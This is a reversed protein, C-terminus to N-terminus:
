SNKKPFLHQVEELSVPKVLHANFGAEDSRIRDEDRGYGTMAILTMDKNQSDNRIQRALEYGDLKPLGIDLLAIDPQKSRVEDLGSLGDSAVFVENGLLRLLHALMQASDLNDDVILIRYSQVGLTESLAPTSRDARRAETLNSQNYANELLRLTVVFESGKDTGDSHATISGGHLEILSKVLTLGIGLGGQSRDSSQIGQSFLEFIHPLIDPSIGAGKDRMSIWASSDKRKATIYIDGKSPSFKSANNLLNAFVQSLRTADGDVILPSSPLDVHLTQKQSDIHPQSIEIAATIVDRLDIPQLKLRVKDQTIRSVDLLDDILRTLQTTQREIIGHSNTIIHKESTRRMVELATRIPALPNRLEHGLMALFQNKRQDAGRLDASTKKLEDELLKQKTQDRMVITFGILTGSQDHLSTITGRAFILSGDKKIIWRDNEVSGVLEAKKLLDELAPTGHEDPPLVRSSISTQLFEELDFGLVTRVGENWSTPKGNIDVMFIAYEQVQAVLTRYREESLKLNSEAMSRETIDEIALLIREPTELSTEIRYGNLLMRKDGLHPFFACVEFDHLSKKKPLIDELLQRLAPINWAGDNIEYILRDEVDKVELKFTTLFAHNVSKVRLSPDLVVLPESVTNFLASTYLDALDLETQVEKVEQIDFLVLVAGDIKNDLTRYPHIRLLWNGGKRDLIEAEYVQVTEVVNLILEEINPVEFAFHIDSFPRSMDTELLNLLKAAAPTFRRIRLDIGVAVMPVSASGLLNLMDDNLRGLEQNRNQLQENVTTLEENISQLEEKATELEENTSQLEENSSLGEENALKLDETARDHQEMIQRIYERASALEQKLQYIEDQSQQQLRQRATLPKLIFRGLESLPTKWSTREAHRNYHNTEGTASTLTDFLILFCREKSTSLKVPLVKLSVDLIDGASRVKLSKLTPSQTTRCDDVASKLEFFLGERALRALNHSPEGATPALYLSTDGRFQLIELNDNVLVGAPAYQGLLMRDAERQWEGSGLQRAGQFINSSSFHETKFHPYQRVATINKSFIRHTNDIPHFLDHFSGVSESAGLILFGNPNLAYHFTPIVRKQLVPSLYILVNRCSIIDLVSFPPDTAMNQRAFICTDRLAKNIRYRGSDKTFFRRLREPSMEEEITQPYIGARAKELSVTDNLDTAFIQIVPRVLKDDLFETLAIALSYAEQGTSCGPVWIRIPTDATKSKLIEPFVCIKLEDFMEPDRFFSTVGILIDQFLAELESPTNELHVAYDSLSDTSCLAMRRLIRRRITTDRYESFDVGKAARLLLLIRHFADLERQNSPTHIWNKELYPYKSIASIKDAIEKPTLIFDVCGSNVASEPMSSYKASETNQAFTLGGAAKIEELGQTGDSGTGSLIIGMANEQHNEALSKFFADIPMPLGHDSRTTLELIAGRITITTNAPIVYVTNPQVSVGSRVDLVDMATCQAFIYRLKSEHTRDLHQVVVFAMGTDTPLNSLLSSVADLGGASAGIGIIPFDASYAHSTDESAADILRKEDPISDTPETM